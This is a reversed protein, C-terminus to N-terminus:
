HSLLETPLVWEKGGVRVWLDIGNTRVVVSGDRDTRLVPIRRRSLRDIVSQSPHGYANEAGVSILAVRPSVAALFAEGSSTSSGHHAVKLVAANISAGHRLLWDEEASEADGTLLFRVRGYRALAVASAENPDALQAAWASDPALFSVVVGDAVLSDGPDVRQWTINHRAITRLAATYSRTPSVYAPDWVETPRLWRVVSAAGGVHDSHPHSLVLALVKGGRRRVYPVIVSRGVDGRQWSRGADFLIWNGSNTRLAIADGQGVDIMHLEAGRLPRRITPQWVLVTAAIGMGILAPGRNRTSCAVILGVAIGALALTAALTPAIDLAANPVRAASIAVFDFAVLLPHAADAVFTAAWRWPAFAMALFLAPQLVTIIPAAVMNAFPGIVSVRGFHWAVLPVTAISALTSALLDRVLQARLAPVDARLIRRTLIGSATLAAMGCVSLQYGIDLVSRPWALPIWAGVALAAWPSAPRQFRQGLATMGYMVASRLAPAPWGLVAVYSGVLLLTLWAALSKRVRAAVLVLEIAGAIIAVHLGSISLMHVLGAAAYRDRLELPIQRQDAVLLARAVPADSRFIADVRAALASRVPEFVHPRAKWRPEPSPASVSVALGGLFLFAFASTVVSRRVVAVVATALGAVGAFLAARPAALFGLLSGGVYAVYAWAILPL